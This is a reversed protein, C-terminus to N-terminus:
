IRVGFADYLCFLFSYSDQSSKLGNLFRIGSEVTFDMVEKTEIHM